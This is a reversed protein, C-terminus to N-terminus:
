IKFTVLASQLEEALESLFKASAAVEEMSSLQEQSAASAQQIGSAGESSIRNVQQMAATLERTQSAAQIIETGVAGLRDVVELSAMRISEFSGAVIRSGEVGLHVSQAGREMSVVTQQTEEQIERVIDSIQRSAQVSHDALKRIEGAVVAFGQGAEGARAAEISANLALLNTQGAIEHIATLIGAIQQSKAHLSGVLKGTEGVNAEIDEMQRFVSQVAGAGKVTEAAASESLEMVEQGSREMFAIRAAMDRVAGSVGDIERAQEEFGASLESTSGSILESARATQEASATLQESSASIVLASENVKTVIGRLGSVMGNFSLTVQGLEDRSRYAGEVTLDGNEARAMLRRLESLPKTILGSVIFGLTLGAVVALISVWLLLTKVVGAEQESSVAREAATNQNAGSAELLLANMRDRLVNVSKAFYQYAEDRRGIMALEVVQGRELEYVPLLDKYSQLSESALLNMSAGDLLGRLQENDTELRSIEAALESRRKADQSLTMELLASEMARHNVRLQNTWVIPSVNERQMSGVTESIRSLSIYAATGVLAMMILNVAILLAIKHRVQM